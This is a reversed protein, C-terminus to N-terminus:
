PSQEDPEASAKDTMQQDHQGREQQHRRDATERAPVEQQVVGRERPREKGQKGNQKRAKDTVADAKLAHRSVGCRHHHRRAAGQCPAAQARAPESGFPRRHRGREVDVESSDPTILDIKGRTERERRDHRNRVPKRGGGPPEVPVKNTELAADDDYPRGGESRDVPQRREIRLHFASGDGEDAQRRQKHLGHEVNSGNLLM